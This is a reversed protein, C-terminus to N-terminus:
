LAIVTNIHEYWVQILDSFNNSLLKDHHLPFLGPLLCEGQFDVSQSVEKVLPQRLNDITYITYQATDTFNIRPLPGYQIRVQPM